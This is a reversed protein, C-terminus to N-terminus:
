KRIFESYCEKNFADPDLSLNKFNRHKFSGWVLDTAHLMKDTETRTVGKPNIRYKIIPQQINSMQHGTALLRCWLEFDLVTRLEPDMTYGGAKLIENKRYMCSPDIIPNLKFRTIVNFAGATDKPPYSMSGIIAGTSSIKVAHGGIFTHDPHEDLYRSQMDFRDPLSIDDADHIAIYEGEAALIARNRSIPIGENHKNLLLRTNKHRDVYKQIITLSQDTSGDDVFIVEFTERPLFDFISSLSEELYQEANFVTTIISIKM